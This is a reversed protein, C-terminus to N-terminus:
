TSRGQRSYKFFIQLIIRSLLDLIDLLFGQSYEAIVLRQSSKSKSSFALHTFVSSWRMLLKNTMSEDYTWSIPLLTLAIRLPSCAFSYARGRRLFLVIMRAPNNRWVTKLSLSATKCNSKRNRQSNDASECKKHKTM